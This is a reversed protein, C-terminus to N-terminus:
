EAELAARTLEQIAADRSTEDAETLAKCFADVSEQEVIRQGNELIHCKIEVDLITFSESRIVKPLRNLFDSPESM